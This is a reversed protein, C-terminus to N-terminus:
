GSRSLIPSVQLGTKYVVKKRVQTDFKLRFHRERYTSSSLPTQIKSSEVVMKELLSHAVLFNKAAFHKKKMAEDSHLIFPSFITTLNGM